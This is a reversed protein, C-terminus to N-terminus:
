PSHRKLLSLTGDAALAGEAYAIAVGRHSQQYSAVLIDVLASFAATASALAVPRMKRAKRCGFAYDALELAATCSCRSLAEHTEKCLVTDPGNKLRLRDFVAICRGLLCLAHWVPDDTSEKHLPEFMHLLLVHARTSGGAWADLAAELRVLATKDGLARVYLCMFRAYARRTFIRHNGCLAFRHVYPVLTALSMSETNNPATQTELKDMAAHARNVLWSRVAPYIQALLRDRPLFVFDAELKWDCLDPAMQQCLASRAFSQAINPGLIAGVAVCSQCDVNSPNISQETAVFDWERELREIADLVEITEKFVSPASPEMADTTTTKPTPCHTHKSACFAAPRCTYRSVLGLSL